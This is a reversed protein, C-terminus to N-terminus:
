SAVQRAREIGLYPTLVMTVLEAQVGALRNAEEGLLYTTALMVVGAVLTREMSDPFEATGPYLERGQKLRDAGLEIASLKREVLGPGAGMADVAFLRTVQELETIFGLGAVIAARVTEPWDAIGDCAESVHALLRGLFQDFAALICQDVNDFHRHFDALTLDTARVLQETDLADFGREAAIRTAAEALRNRGDAGSVLLGVPGPGDELVLDPM